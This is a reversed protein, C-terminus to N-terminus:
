SLQELITEWAAKNKPDFVKKSQDLFIESKKNFDPVMGYNAKFFGDGCMITDSKHVIISSIFPLGNESCYIDLKELYDAVHHPDTDFKVTDNLTKYFIFEGNIAYKLVIRSAEKEDSNFDSERIDPSDTCFEKWVAEWDKNTRLANIAIPM